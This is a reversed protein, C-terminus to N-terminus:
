KYYRNSLAPIHSKTLSYYKKGKREGYKILEEFHYCYEEYDSSYDRDRFFSPHTLFVTEMLDSFQVKPNHKWFYNEDPKRGDAGIFFITKALSSALPLMLYTSISKTGYVKLNDVSPFSYKETVDLGIIYDKLFPHHALLLPVTLKPVVVFCKYENVVEVVRARFQSAYKSPGFHFVCDAFMVIDPKGIYNLFDKNKIITNCIIKLSNKDYTYKNYDDFSPGTLFCYANETNLHTKRLNSFNNLSIDDYHKRENKSKTFYFKKMWINGESWGYYLPDAIEFKAIFYPLLYFLHKSFKTNLILDARLIDM